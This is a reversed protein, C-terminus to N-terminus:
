DIPLREKIWIARAVGQERGILGRKELKVLHYRVNSTSKLGTIEALDAMSPGHHHQEIYEGIAHYMQITMSEVATDEVVEVM